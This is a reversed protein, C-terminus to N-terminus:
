SWTTLGVLSDVPVKAPASLICTHGEREWSVIWRGDRQLTYVNTAGVKTEKAGDPKELPDGDVITYSVPAGKATAYFVTTADRGEITDRRVGKAPWDIEDWAPFNIGAESAMLAHPDSGDRPPAPATAPRAGLGAAEVVTPGGPTGGPAVLVALVLALAAASAVLGGLAFRRRRRAPATRARQGELSERLSMPAQVDAVAAAIMARGREALEAERAPDLDAEPEDSM